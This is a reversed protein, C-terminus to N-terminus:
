RRTAPVGVERVGVQAEGLVVGSTQCAQCLAHRLSGAGHHGDVLGEGRLRLHASASAQSRLCARPWLRSSAFASLSACQHM